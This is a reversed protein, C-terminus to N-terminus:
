LKSFLHHWNWTQHICTCHVVHNTYFELSNALIHKM